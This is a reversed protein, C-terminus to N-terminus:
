ADDAKKKAAAAKAANGTLAKGDASTPEVAPMAAGNNSNWHTFVCKDGKTCTGASHFKCPGNQHLPCSKGKKCEGNFHFPCLKSRDTEVTRKPSASRNGSDGKGGKSGSASSSNGTKGKKGRDKGDGKPGGTNGLAKPHAYECTGAEHKACVGKDRWQFCTM